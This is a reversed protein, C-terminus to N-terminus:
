RLYFSYRARALRQGNWIGPQQVCVSRLSAFLYPRHKGGGLTMLYRWAQFYGFVIPITSVTATISQYRRFGGIGFAFLLNASQERWNGPASPSYRFPLSSPQCHRRHLLYIVLMPTQMIALGGNLPRTFSSDYRGVRWFPLSNPGRGGPSRM